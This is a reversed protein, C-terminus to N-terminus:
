ENDANITLGHNTFHIYIKKTVVNCKLTAEDIRCTKNNLSLLLWLLKIPKLNLKKAVELTFEIALALAPKGVINSWRYFLANLLIEKNSSKAIM